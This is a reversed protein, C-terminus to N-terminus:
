PRHLPIVTDPLVVLFARKAKFSVVAVRDAIARIQRERLTRTSEFSPEPNIAIVLTCDSYDKKAKEKCTRLMHPVLSEVEDGPTGIHISGYGRSVVLRADRAETEGDHPTTIDIRDSERGNENFVLADFAQNGAVWQIEWTEPYARLAFCSLPVLEDLFQKYLGKKLIGRHREEIDASVADKTVLVYQRLARPSRRRQMEATSIM